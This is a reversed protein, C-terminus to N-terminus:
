DTSSKTEKDNPKGLLPVAGGNLAARALAHTATPGTLLVFVVILALKVTVMSLGAYFMLGLLTLGIGFTDVIGAGHMRTFVDPLRLIGLAGIFCFAPGAILCLWGLVDFLTDM